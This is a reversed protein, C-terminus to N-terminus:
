FKTNFSQNEDDMGLATSAVFDQSAGNEVSQGLDCRRSYGIHLGQSTRKLEVKACSELNQETDDTPKELHLQLNPIRKGAVSKRLRQLYRLGVFFVLSILLHVPGLDEELLFKVEQSLM